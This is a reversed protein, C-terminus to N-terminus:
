KVKGLTSKKKKENELGEVWEKICYSNILGAKM